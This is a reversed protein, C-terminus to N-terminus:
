LFRELYKLPEPELVMIRLHYQWNAFGKKRGAEHYFTGWFAKAFEHSFIIKHYEYASYFLFQGNRDRVSDDKGEHSWGAKEIVKRLIEENSM